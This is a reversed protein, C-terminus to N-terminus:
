LFPITFAQARRCSLLCLMLCLMLLSTLCVGFATLCATHPLLDSTLQFSSLLLFM